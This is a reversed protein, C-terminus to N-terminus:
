EVTARRRCTSRRNGQWSIAFAFQIGRRASASKARLEDPVESIESLKKCIAALNTLVMVEVENELEM